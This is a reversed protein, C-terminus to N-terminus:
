PFFIALMRPMSCRDEQVPHQRTAGFTFCLSRCMGAIKGQKEQYVNSLDQPKGPPVLPLFFEGALAPSKLSICTQYKPQSSARSSPMSVWELIRAQLIGHVSCGPPSCDMCDCLDSMVSTVSCVCVCSKKPKLIKRKLTLSTVKRDPSHQSRGRIILWSNLVPPVPSKQPLWKILVQKLSFLYMTKWSLPFILFIFSSSLLIQPNM